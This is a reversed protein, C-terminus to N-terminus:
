SCLDKVWSFVSFRGMIGIVLCCYHLLQLQRQCIIQPFCIGCCYTSFCGDVYISWETHIVMLPSSSFQREPTVRRRWHSNLQQPELSDAAWWREESMFFLFATSCNLSRPTHSDIVAVHWLQGGGECWDWRHQENGRRWGRSIWHTFYNTVSVDQSCLSSCVSQWVTWVSYHCSPGVGPWPGWRPESLLFWRLGCSCHTYRHTHTHTNLVTARLPWCVIYFSLTMDYSSCASM